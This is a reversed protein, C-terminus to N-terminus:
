GRLDEWGDLDPRSPHEAAWKADFAADAARGARQCLVVLLGIIIWM